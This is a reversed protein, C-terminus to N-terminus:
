PLQGETFARKYRENLLATVPTPLRLEQAVDLAHGYDALTAEVSGFGVARQELAQSGIAEPVLTAFQSFDLDAVRAMAEAEARGAAEAGAAIQLFLRAMIGAGVPGVHGVREAIDHLVSVATHFAQGDGGVPLILAGAARCAPADLFHSGRERALTDWRRAASPVTTCLDVVLEGPALASFVGEPGELAMAAEEVTQLALLVIEVSSALYFATSSRNVDLADYAGNDDGPLQFVFVRHGTRLLREAALLGVQGSGVIGVAVTAHGTQM